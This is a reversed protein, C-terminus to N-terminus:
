LIELVTEDNQEKFRFIAGKSFMLEFVGNKMTAREIKDNRVKHLDALNIYEEGDDLDDEADPTERTDVFLVSNDLFVRLWVGEIEMYFLIVFEKTAGCVALINDCKKGKIESIETECHQRSIM